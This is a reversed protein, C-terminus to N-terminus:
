IMRWALEFSFARNVDKLQFDRFEIDEIVGGRSPQSKIRAANGSGTFICRQVLVHRISGSVESGVAVGGGSGFACDSIVINQAPRNVRLGDADKGAKISINDDTCSIDCRSIRVGETSDIDIHDSGFPGGGQELRGVVFVRV